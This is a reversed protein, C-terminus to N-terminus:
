KFVGEKTLVFKMVHYINAFLKLSVLLKSEVLNLFIVKLLM